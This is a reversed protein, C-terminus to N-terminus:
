KNFPVDWRYTFSWGILTMALVLLLVGLSVLSLVRGHGLLSDRTEAHICLLTAVVIVVAWAVLSPLGPHKNITALFGQPPQGAPVWWPLIPSIGALLIITLLKQTVWGKIKPRSGRRWVLFDWVLLGAAVPVWGYLAVKDDLWLWARFLLRSPHGVILRPLLLWAVMSNGAVAVMLTVLSILQLWHRAPAIGCRACLSQKALFPMGCRECFM